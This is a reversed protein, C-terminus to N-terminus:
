RVGVVQTRLIRFKPVPPTLLEVIPPLPERRFSPPEADMYAPPSDTAVAKRRDRTFLRQKSGSPTTRTGAYHLEGRLVLRHLSELVPKPRLTGDRDVIDGAAIVESRGIMALISDASRITAQRKRRPGITPM